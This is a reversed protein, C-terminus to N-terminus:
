CVDNDRDAIGLFGNGDILLGIRVHMQMDYLSGIMTEICGVQAAHATQHSCRCIIVVLHHRNNILEEVTSVGVNFINNIMRAIYRIQSFFSVKAYQIMSM